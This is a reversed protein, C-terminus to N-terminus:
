PPERRERIRKVSAVPSPPPEIGAHRREAAQFVRLVRLRAADEVVDFVDPNGFFRMFHGVNAARDAVAAIATELREIKHRLELRPPDDQDTEIEREFAPDMPVAPM